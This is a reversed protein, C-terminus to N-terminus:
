ENKLRLLKSLALSVSGKWKSKLLQDSVSAFGFSVVFCLEDRMMVELDM